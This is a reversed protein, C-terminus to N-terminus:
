EVPLATVPRATFPRKASAAQRLFPGTLHGLLSEIQEDTLPGGKSIAWAPMLGGEKGETIWKQWYERDTPKNLARLNPVMSARHDADHCVACSAKYLAEDKQGIAPQLHCTACDGKFVAMRDALATQLNKAREALSMTAVSSIPISCRVTLYRYGATSDVTVTKSLVGNKGRVDVAVDFAGSGGAPILWPLPPVKAATCGCSTRVSTISVDASSTNTMSFSLSLSTEGAKLTGEKVLGDWAFVTEQTMSHTMPVTKYPSNALFPVPAVTPAVPRTPSLPVLGPIATPDAYYTGFALPPREGARAPSFTMVNSRVLPYGQIAPRAPVNTSPSKATPRTLMQVNTPFSTRVRNTMRPPLPPPPPVAFPTTQAAPTPLEGAAVAFLALAAIRSQPAKM